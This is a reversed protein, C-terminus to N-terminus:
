TKVNPWKVDDSCPPQEAIWAKIKDMDWGSMTRDKDDDAPKVPKGMIFANSISCAGDVYKYRFCDGAGLSKCAAGCDEFSKHAKKEQENYEEAKKTRKLQWDSWKREPDLYFRNDALNDWDARTENLHPALFEDYIDRLLLPRTTQKRTQKREFHWFSNIEEANMHHMTVVPHCWHSPGFPLTAPKEGNITPWQSPPTTLM